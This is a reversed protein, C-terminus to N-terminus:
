QKVLTLRCTRGEVRLASGQSGELRGTFAFAFKTGRKSPDLAAPGGDNIGSQTLHIGGDSKVTGDWSTFGLQGAVGYQGHVSGNKLEAVFDKSWGESKGAKDCVVNAAWLGDFRRVDSVNSASPAPAARAQGSQEAAVLRWVPKLNVKLTQGSSIKQELSFGDGSPTLTITYGRDGKFSLQTGTAKGEFADFGAPFQPGNQTPSGWVFFGTVQAPAAVNTVIIMGHRGHGNNFGVDSAWIGVVKRLAAPVTPDPREINFMPMAVLNDKTAIARVREADQETFLGDAQTLAPAVSPAPSAPPPLAAMQQTGSQTPAATPPTFYFDGQIASHAVYPDQQGNTDRSVELSVENFVKFLDLGPKQMADALARSYPSHGDAGDRAVGQPQTAFSILTGAPVRMEALGSGSIDRVRSGLALALGRTATFPDNRCADLIVINIRTSAAQMQRLVLNTDLMQFDVDAERTPNADVPVLYNNGRVQVGHGAYYFVGADAGQLQTGFAQVARDLAPKDLNIQAGGGVLTFGLKRLTDAILKADNAPNDLPATSRYASNGIVLAVRKDAAAVPASWVGAVTGFLLAIFLLGPRLKKRTLELRTM